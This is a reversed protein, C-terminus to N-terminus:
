AIFTIYYPVNAQNWKISEITVQSEDWTLNIGNYNTMGFPILITENNTSLIISQPKSLYPITFTPIGTGIYSEYTPTPPNYPQGISASPYSPPLNNGKAFDPSAVIINEIINNSNIICYNM